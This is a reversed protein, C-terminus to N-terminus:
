GFGQFFRDFNGEESRPVVKPVPKGSKFALGKGEVGGFRDM